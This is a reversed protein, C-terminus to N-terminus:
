YNLTLMLQVGLQVAGCFSCCVVLPVALVTACPACCQWLFAATHPGVCLAMAVGWLVACAGPVCLAMLGRCGGGAGWGQHQGPPKEKRSCPYPLFSPDSCRECCETGLVAMSLAWLVAAHLCVSQACQAGNRWSRGPGLQAAPATASVPARVGRSWPADSVFFDLLCSFFLGAHRLSCPWPRLQARRM